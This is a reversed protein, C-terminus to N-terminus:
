WCFFPLFLGYIPAYVGWILILELLTSTNPILILALKNRMLAPVELWAILAAASIIGSVTWM